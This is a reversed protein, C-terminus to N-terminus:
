PEHGMPVNFSYIQVFENQRMKLPELNSFYRHYQIWWYVKLNACSYNVKNPIAIRIQNDMVTKRCKCKINTVFAYGKVYRMKEIIFAENREFRCFTKYCGM